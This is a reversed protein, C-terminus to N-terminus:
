THRQVAKEQLEGVFRSVTLEKGNAKKVSCVFLARKARTMGVYFLRREEEVDAELVAKRYPMIGENVDALFVQEYELGKASHLTSVVVSNPDFRAKKTMELLSEGYERIHALWAEMTPYGRAGELIEDAVEYLEDRNLSRYKAYDAIYDDYGIGRRIYNVAAYPSMKGLQKVDAWLREIREAVWPKEDYMRIWEDFAVEPECLSDRSIYRKPKNMVSLFDARKRSGQAIRLYAFFDRAIWHEYVNPIKDKTCFPVNQELMQELLLRPQTNTRCLVAIEGPPTGSRVARRIQDIVYANEKRQDEFCLFVVEGGTEGSAKLQKDFRHANHAILRGAADVIQPACRYNVGLLVQKADPYDKTFGLMIEPRAGRFRYIAQDDDGVAFLNNEPAALMRVIDYQIRNIDQFEDVLLWAYKKQWASLIDPRQAFLDYAYTQMDDFDILRNQAMRRNYQAYIDRFIEEGCHSSYFHAPDIRGNKILSVEGLLNAILENEDRCDLHHRSLIERMLHYRQEDSVINGKEFGYAHRLVTFFVAHFTGFSVQTRSLGSLGLFRQKMENAAAKTFTIVLIKSADVGCERILHVIRQTIVATKGSGPGALVLMPGDRHRIAAEQSKSYNM